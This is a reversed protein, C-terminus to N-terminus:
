ALAPPARAPPPLTLVFWRTSTFRAVQTVSVDAVATFGVMELPPPASLSACLPCDLTHSSTSGPAADDGTVLVQMAGTGSCILQMGKPQVVPSAIAAGLSLAFWVLVCRALRHANRLSQM